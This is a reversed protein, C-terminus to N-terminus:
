RCADEIRKRLRAADHLRSNLSNSMSDRLAPECLPLNARVNWGASAAAAEAAVAAIALDSRLMENSQGILQECVNLLDLSLDLIRQPVAMAREVAGSWEATRRPDAEDLKQLESLRAYAHADEEALVLAAARNVALLQLLDHYMVEHQSLKKKARSYHVVMEALAAGVAAILAAATGGGPSPVKAALAALLDSVSQERM